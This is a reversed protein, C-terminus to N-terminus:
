YKSKGARLVRHGIARVVIWAHAVLTMPLGYHARMVDFRDKLSQRHRQKSLGGMLYDTIILGTNINERSSKLIKICWDYDACLNDTRYQPAVTRRPIFSQHVVLMGGLFDRWGLKQPLSRTSLESMTGSPTRADNVLLTEGYFVDTEPTCQAAIKEITDPAHLRDGGNLFQVFDGSAMNLGKNMADYLGRDKESIWKLNPMKSAFEEIIAVSGDKSAGDVVIYEIHPYTQELVSQMTGRLLSEGNYVVTIISFVAPKVTTSDNSLAPRNKFQVVFNRFIVLRLTRLVQIQM